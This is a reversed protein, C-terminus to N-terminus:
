LMFHTIASYLYSEDSVKEARHLLLLNLESYMKLRAHSAIDLLMELEDKQSFIKEPVIIIFLLILASVGKM